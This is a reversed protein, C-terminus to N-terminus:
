IWNTTSQPRDLLRGSLSDAVGLPKDSLLFFSLSIRDHDKGKDRTWRPEYLFLSWHLRHGSLGLPHWAQSLFTPSFSM